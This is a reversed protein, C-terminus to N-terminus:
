KIQENLRMASEICSDINYYEWEAFRGLLFINYKALLQKVLQIKNRTDADQIIYSNAEYNFAIPRLNGPLKKLEDTMDKEGYKGSFEVVCTRRTLPKNNSESFNGTYIIRHAKIKKEPLYLWTLDSDDTECFLTSTGTSSFGQVAQLARKLQDDDTEIIDGFKRIDGCYIVMEAALKDNVSLQQGALIRVRTVTTNLSIKQKEALRNVIFQSGNKKPYYFSSHVMEREARKEMNSIIIETIQPMPLKGALWDIPIKGLDKNWIKLNYPGFYLTYLTKGFNGILFDKFNKYIVKGQEQTSYIQMLELVIPKIKNKPLQYLHYELPYGIFKGNLLIKANRDFRCFESERNFQQWFWNLVMPNKSNFVHGGVKHFLAGDVRECKILGGPMASQELIEVDFRDSLIKSVALGSIGAGITIIKRM